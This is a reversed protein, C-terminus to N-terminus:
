MHVYVDEEVVTSGVHNRHSVPQNRHAFFIGDQLGSSARTTYRPELAGNCQQGNLALGTIRYM